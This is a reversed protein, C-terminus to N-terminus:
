RTWCEEDNATGDAMGASRTGTSTLGLVRCRVDAEQPGGPIATAVATWGATDASLVELSYTQAGVRSTFQLNMTACSTERTDDLIAAYANCSTHFGEEAAALSLLAARADSRRARMAQARFSPIAVCALLAAIALAAVLDVLTFGAPARSKRDGSARGGQSGARHVSNPM